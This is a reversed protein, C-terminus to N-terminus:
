VFTAPSVRFRESLARVQRINLERKGALVESVVGQSGVEPLDSQKLGHQQMLFKLAQVGTVDPLPHHVTEYDEILDGVIDVLGMAPHNEDGQAEDLLAELVQTMQAYHAEDRIPGIDTAARFQEWVPLLREIDIHANM